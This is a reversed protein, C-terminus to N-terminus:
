EQANMLPPPSWRPAIQTHIFTLGHGELREELFDHGLCLSVMMVVRQRILGPKEPLQGATVLTLDFSV